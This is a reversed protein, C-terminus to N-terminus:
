KKEEYYEGKKVREIYNAKRKLAMEKESKPLKDTKKRYANTIIIKKGIIFFSLFRHPQPKFAYIGDGEFNFKTTDSIKGSVGMRKFLFLTRDQELADLMSFYEFPQSVGKEDCFWEITFKEGTYAIYERFKSM